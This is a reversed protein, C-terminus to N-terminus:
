ANLYSQLDLNKKGLIIMNNKKKLSYRIIRDNINECVLSKWLKESYTELIPNETIQVVEVGRELAEIIAGSCGIFISFNKKIKGKNKSKFKTREIKKILSNHIPSSLTTPHNKIKFNSIDIQENKIFFDLLTVIEKVSNLRSPLFILNSMSNGNKIFRVSPLIKLRSRKWGLLRTFLDLQDRGNLILKDPVTSKAILNFPASFPSAHVYGLTKIKPNSSKSIKLIENQFPQGEYPILLYQIKKNLFKKFELSIIKSFISYSSIKNLFFKKGYKLYKISYLIIKLVFLYNKKNNNKVKFLIINNKIKKPIKESLFIVFWLTKKLSGSNLNLTKENFSGNKQFQNEGAWTVIIKDYNEELNKNYYLKSYYFYSSYFIDKLIYLTKYFFNVKYNFIKNLSFFGISNVTPAFYFFDINIKKKKFNLFYNKIKKIMLIQDLNNKM